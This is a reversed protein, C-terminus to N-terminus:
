ARATDAADALTEVPAPPWPGPLVTGGADEDAGPARPGNRGETTRRGAPGDTGTGGGSSFGELSEEQQGDGSM